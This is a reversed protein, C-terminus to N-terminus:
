VAEYGAAAANLIAEDLEEGTNTPTPQGVGKAGSNEFDDQREKIESTAKFTDSNLIEMAVEEANKVEEYKAKAVIEAGGNKTNLNDLKQLRTRENTVGESVGAEKGENYIENYLEPYKNKLEDKKMKEGENVTNKIKSENIPKVEPEKPETIKGKNRLNEVLGEPTNDYSNLIEFEEFNEITGLNSFDEIKDIFGNTLAEEPNMWTTKDMMASVEERTLNTKTMYVDIIDEKIKDLFDAGDRFDKAEGWIGGSPNHIMMEAGICMRTEDCSVGLYSAASAGIGDFIAITKINNKAAYRKLSNAIAHAEFVNGGPSNINLNIIETDEAEIAHLERVFAQSSVEGLEKWAWKTIAGYIYIDTEKTEKNTSFNWFKGVKKHEGPM